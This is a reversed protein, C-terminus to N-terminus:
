NGSKIQDAFLQWFPLDASGERKIFDNKYNAYAKEDICLENHLNGAKIQDLNIPTKALLASMASIRAGDATRGIKDSTLFILPKKFLIAYNVSTSSHMIVLKAKKILNVTKGRIVSRGNFYDPGKEYHSRPHAAIVVKLGLEKEIKDFFRCLLPYYENASVPAAVGLHIYDPHFPLNEDLFIAIDEEACPRGKEQLYLDYDFTHLWLTKTTGDFPYKYAKASKEGGALNWQAPKIGLCPFPTREILIEPNFLRSLRNIIKLLTMKKIVSLHSAQRSAPIALATILAYRLNNKAIARYISFSALYYGFLVIIYCDKPLAAIASLAEKKTMFLRHQKFAIPDPAQYEAFVRPYMFPTFEWVEVAFGNQKLLDIGFRDYDRKCFPSHTFFVIKKTM